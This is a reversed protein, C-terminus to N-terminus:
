VLRPDVELSIPDGIELSGFDPHKPNFVYNSEHPVIVSPVELVCSQGSAIWEDGIKQTDRPSPHSKWGKPLQARDFRDVCREDFVVPIVLYFPLLRTGSSRVLMELLGLSSTAATYVVPIGISNWRGGVIRAGEGDFATDQFRQTVVRWSTITL